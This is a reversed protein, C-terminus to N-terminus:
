NSNSKDLDSKTRDDQGYVYKRWLKIIDEILVAAFISAVAAVILWSVFCSATYNEGLRESVYFVLFSYGIAVAVDMLLLAFAVPLRTRKM